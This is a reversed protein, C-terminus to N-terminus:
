LVSRFLSTILYRFLIYWICIYRYRISISQREIDLLLRFGGRIRSYLPDPNDSDHFLNVLHSPLSRGRFCDARREDVVLRVLKRARRVRLEVADPFTLGCLKILQGTYRYTPLNQRHSETRKLARYPSPPDGHSERRRLAHSPSSPLPLTRQKESAKNEQGSAVLQFSGSMRMAVSITVSKM